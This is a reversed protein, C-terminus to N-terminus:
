ESTESLRRQPRNYYVEADYTIHQNRSRRTFGALPRRSLIIYGTGMTHLTNHGPVVVVNEAQNRSHQESQSCDQEKCADLQRHGHRDPGPSRHEDDSVRQEDVNGTPGLRHGVLWRGDLRRVGVLTEASVDTRWVAEEGRNSKEM